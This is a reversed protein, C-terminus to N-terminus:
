KTPHLFGSGREREGPKLEEGSVNKQYMAKQREQKYGLTERANMHKGSNSTSGDQSNTTPLKTVLHKQSYCYKSIVDAVVRNHREVMSNGQPHYPSRRTKEIRSFNCVGLLLKSCFNSGLNKHLCGPAGITLVWNEVIARAVNDATTRELPVCVVCKKFYDTLVLIYKAGSTEARTVPGLIDAAVESFRIGVNIKQLLAIRKEWRYKTISM